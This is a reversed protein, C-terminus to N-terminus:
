DARAHYVLLVNQDGPKVNKPNLIKYVESGRKIKNGTTPITSLGKPSVKIIVDSALVNTNDVMYQSVPTFIAKISVETDATAGTYKGTAANYTGASGPQYFVANDSGWEDLLSDALDIFSDYQGM